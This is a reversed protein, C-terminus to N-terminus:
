RLLAAISRHFREIPGSATEGGTAEPPGLALGLQTSEALGVQEKLWEEPWKDRAGSRPAYRFSRVVCRGPAVPLLQLLQARHAQREFLQNPPLVQREADLWQEILVKWDAAVTLERPELPLWSEPLEILPPEGPAGPHPGSGRVWLLGDREHVDLPTLSRSQGEIPRGQWDFALGHVDCRLSGSLRGRGESVLAHPRQPCANRYARLTGAADRLVLAREGGLDRAIFDGPARIEGRHGILQWAPRLLVERERALLQPDAYASPPLATARDATARDVTARDAVARPAASPRTPVAPAASADIGSFTGPFVSRLYAMSLARFAQRDLQAEEQFAINQWLV